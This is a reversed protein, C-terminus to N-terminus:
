IEPILEIWFTFNEGSIKICLLIFLISILLTLIIDHFCLLTMDFDVNPQVLYLHQLFMFYQLIIIEVILISFIRLQDISLDNNNFSIAM